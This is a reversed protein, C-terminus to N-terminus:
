LSLAYGVGIRLWGNALWDSEREDTIVSHPDDVTGPDLPPENRFSQPYNLKWFVGVAEARLHLRDTIFLQTGISPAIYFKNGFEYGSTDSPTGESFAIGAGMTMFPALRNWSKAGTFNFQLGADVMTVAQKVPGSTRNAVAVFPDVVLRELDAQQVSAGLGLLGSVRIDYRGGVTPGDHPGIGFDGGNGGFWGGLATLTHGTPTDRYPSRTPPHGVQAAADAALTLGLAAVLAPAVLAPAVLAAFARLALSPLRM